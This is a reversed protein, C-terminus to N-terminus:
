ELCKNLLINMRKYKKNNGECEERSGEWENGRERVPGICGLIVLIWGGDISLRYGGDVWVWWWGVLGGDILDIVMKLGGKM